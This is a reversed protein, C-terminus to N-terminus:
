GGYCVGRLLEALEDVFVPLKENQTEGNAHPGKLPGRPGKFPDRPGKFPGRPGKFPGREYAADNSAPKEAEGHGYRLYLRQTSSPLRAPSKRGPERNGASVSGSSM